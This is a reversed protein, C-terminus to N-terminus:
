GQGGTEPQYFRRFLTELDPRGVALDEVPKGALFELLGSVPGDLSGQWVSAEQTTLKLFAPPRIGLGDTHNKWRIMVDHGARERLKALSEDAVLAGDRVIAVRECLQEVEALSHSSFFITNSKRALERLIEHVLQQVLPDLSNTPEDLILLRPAHALALILGLKQCMGRSMERVKVHLDLDLQEALETGRPRINKRRVAGFISFAKDASLWVPLRLDGPLYGVEGKISKSDHWCDMGFIQASGGSPRLLGMLVRITTTKGAGNPGLFGFLAGEPIELSIGEIGRRRGYRRTLSDLKIVSVGATIAYHGRINFLSRYV